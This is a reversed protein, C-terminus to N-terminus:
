LTFDGSVATSVPLGDAQTISPVILSHGRKYVSARGDRVKISQNSPQSGADDEGCPSSSWPSFSSVKVALSGITSIEATTIFGGTIASNCGWYIDTWPGGIGTFITTTAGYDLPRITEGIISLCSLDADPEPWYYLDVNQASVDCVGCCSPLAASSNDYGIAPHIQKLEAGDAAVQAHSENMGGEFVYGWPHGTMAIWENAASVCQSSRMWNKIKEFDSLREPPNYTQCDSQNVLGTQAFCDNDLLNGNLNSDGPMQDSFTIDFFKEIALTRNGSCSADWLLCQDSFNTAIAEVITENSDKFSCFDDGIACFGSTIDKYNAKFKSSNFLNYPNPYFPAPMPTPVNTVGHSSNYIGIASPTVRSSNDAQILPSVASFNSVTTASPKPVRELLTRRALITHGDHKLLFHLLLLKLLCLM